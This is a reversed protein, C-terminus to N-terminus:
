MLLILFYTSVVIRCSEETEQDGRIYVKFSLIFKNKCMM